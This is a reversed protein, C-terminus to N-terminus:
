FFYLTHVFMTVYTAVPQLWDHTGIILKIDWDCAGIDHNLGIQMPIEEDSDDFGETGMYVIGVCYYYVYCFLSFICCRNSSQIGLM